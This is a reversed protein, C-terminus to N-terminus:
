SAGLNQQFTNMEERLGDKLPLDHTREILELAVIPAPYNGKTVKLVNERAKKFLFKRGLPNGELLNDVFTTKRPTRKGNVERAMKFAREDAFTSPVFADVLGM